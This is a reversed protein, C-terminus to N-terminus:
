PKASGGCASRNEVDGSPRANLADSSSNQGALAKKDEEAYKALRIRRHTRVTEWITPRSGPPFLPPCEEETKGEAELRVRRRERIEALIKGVRSNQERNEGRQQELRCIRRVLGKM